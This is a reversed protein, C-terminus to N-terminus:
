IQLALFSASGGGLWPVSAGESGAGGPRGPSVAAESSTIVTERKSARAQIVYQTQSPAKTCSFALQRNEASSRHLDRQRRCGGPSWNDVVNGSAEAIKIKNVTLCDKQVTGPISLPPALM